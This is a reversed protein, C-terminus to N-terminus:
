VRALAPRALPSEVARLASRREVRVFPFTREVNLSEQLICYQCHLHLYPYERLRREELWRARRRPPLDRSEM